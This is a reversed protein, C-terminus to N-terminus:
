TLGRNDCQGFKSKLTTYYIQPMTSFSVVPAMYYYNRTDEVPLSAVGTIKKAIFNELVKKLNKKFM